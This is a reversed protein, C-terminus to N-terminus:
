SCDECINTNFDSMPNWETFLNWKTFVITAVIYVVMKWNRSKKVCSCLLGSILFSIFFTHYFSNFYILQITKWNQISENKSIFLHKEIFMNELINRFFIHIKFVHFSYSSKFRSYLDQIMFRSDYFMFRPIHVEYYSGWKRLKIVLPLM